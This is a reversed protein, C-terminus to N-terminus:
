EVFCSHMVLLVLNESLATGPPVRTLPGPSGASGHRAKENRRKAALAQHGHQSSQSGGM